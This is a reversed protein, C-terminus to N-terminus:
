SHNNWWAQKEGRLYNWFGHLLAFNMWVFHRIFRLWKSNLSFKGLIGDLLALGYFAIQAYFAWLMLHSNAAAYASSILTVLLLWPGLWRLAKHSWFAYATFGYSPSLMKRFYVLNMWNGRSIRVKRRYQVQSVGSVQLRTIAEPALVCQKRQRLVEMFLYFDDVVFGEPIPRFNNKRIAYGSGFAGIVAGRSSEGAKMEMERDNYLTEQVGVTGGLTETRFASQVGGITNDTLFPAILQPLTDPVFYTDADTLIFLEGKAREALANIIAPKGMRQTFPLLLIRNDQKAWEKIIADTQDTCCDTGILLELKDAPYNTNLSSRIKENIVAEENFAALLISIKPLETEPAPVPWKRVKRALRQMHWPYIVYTHALLLFGVWFLLM